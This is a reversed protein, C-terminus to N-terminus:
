SGSGERTKGKEPEQGLRELTEEAARTIRVYEWGGDGNTNVKKASALQSMIDNYTMDSFLGTEDFKRILRATM